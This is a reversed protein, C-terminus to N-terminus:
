TKWQLKLSLLDRFNRPSKETNQGIEIICYNPHDWKMNKNEIRGTEKHIRQYTYRM